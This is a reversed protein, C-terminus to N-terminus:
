GAPVVTVKTMYDPATVAGNRNPDGKKIGEVINQGSLVRGVVTYKGNLFPANDFMIFFQSNASDPDNGRAMGVVGKRFAINSFEAKLNPQDSRGMGARVLAGGRKGYQVDGTQAMFGAIVRHFVVNDYAGARALAEIRAVHHPAIDNFLEIEIKGTESGGVQIILRDRAAPAAVDTLGTVGKPTVAAATKITSQSDISSSAAPPVPPVPEMEPQTLYMYGMFGGILLILLVIITLIIKKM